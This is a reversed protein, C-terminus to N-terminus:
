APALGPRQRLLFDKVGDLSLTAPAASADITANVTFENAYEGDYHGPHAGIAVGSFSVSSPTGTFTGAGLADFECVGDSASVIAIGAPMAGLSLVFAGVHGTGSPTWGYIGVANGVDDFGANMEGGALSTSGSCSDQPNEAYGIAYSLSGATIHQGPLNVLLPAATTTTTEAPAATTSTTEVPAVATTTTEAPAVTTTTEAPAVTTTTTEQAGATGGALATAGVLAAIGVAVMLRNMDVM